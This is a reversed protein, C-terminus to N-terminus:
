KAHLLQHLIEKPVHNTEAYKEFYIAHILTDITEPNPLYMLRMPVPAIGDVPPQLYLQPLLSVGHRQFFAVRSASQTDSPPDVEWIMGLPDLGRDRLRAASARWAHDLLASGLGRGRHDPHIALYVLFVAPPQLLLHTTALGITSDQLRVRLALGVGRRVSALIVEAPERETPPFSAEYLQWWPQDASLEDPSPSDFEPM